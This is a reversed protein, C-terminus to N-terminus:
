SRGFGLAVAPHWRPGREARTSGAKPLWRCDPVARRLRAAVPVIRM